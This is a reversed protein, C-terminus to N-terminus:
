NNNKLRISLSEIVGTSNPNFGGRTTLHGGLDNIKFRPISGISTKVLKDCKTEEIIYFASTNHGLNEGHRLDSLEIFENLVMDLHYPIKRFKILNYSTNNHGRYDSMYVTLNKLINDYPRFRLFLKIKKYKISYSKKDFTFVPEKDPEGFIEIVRLANHNLSYFFNLM